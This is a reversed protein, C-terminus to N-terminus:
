LEIKEGLKIRELSCSPVLRGNYLMADPCGDCLSWGKSTLDPTHLIIIVQYRLPKFLNKPNKLINFLYYFLMKLVSPTLVLKIAKALNITNQNIPFIEGDNNKSKQNTKFLTEMIKGDAYGIIKEGHFIPIYFLWSVADPNLTKPLYACPKINYEKEIPSAIKEVTLKKVKKEEKEPWLQQYITFIFHSVVDSNKKYYKIINPLNKLNDQTVTMIFQLDVGKTERFMQCYKDRIKRIERENIRGARKQYSAIHIVIENAGAKKLQNLRSPTLAVGNTVIKVRLHKRHAYAIIEDLKPYALPEGGAISITQIKRIKILTDIEKKLKAVDEHIRPPNPQDLGRYCGPCALQCYTTPEIWGNPNNYTSWPLRYLEKLNLPNM